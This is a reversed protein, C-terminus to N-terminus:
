KALTPIVLGKSSRSSGAAGAGSNSGAAEATAKKRQRWAAAVRAEFVSASDEPARHVRVLSMDPLVVAVDHAKLEENGVRGSTEHYMGGRLRLVLHVRDNHQLNYDAFTRGDELQRGVFVLRQQDCPVGEHDQIWEKLNLVTADFCSGVFKITKGTLTRVYICLHGADKPVPKRLFVNCKSLLRSGGAAQAAALAALDMGVDDRM